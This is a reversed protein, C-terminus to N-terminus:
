GHLDLKDVNRDRRVRIYDRPLRVEYLGDLVQALHEGGTHRPYLEAEGEAFSRLLPQYPPVAVVVFQGGCGHLGGLAHPGSVEEYGEYSLGKGDVHKGGDFGAGLDAADEAGRRVGHPRHDCLLASPARHEADHVAVRGEADLPVICPFLVSVGVAGVAEPGVGAGDCAQRLSVVVGEWWREAPCEVWGPEPSDNEHAARGLGLLHGEADCVGVKVGSTGIDLGLLLEAM